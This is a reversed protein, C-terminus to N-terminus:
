ILMVCVVVRTIRYFTQFEKYRDDDYQPRPKRPSIIRESEFDYGGTLVENTVEDFEFDMTKMFEVTLDWACKQLCVGLLHFEGFPTALRLLMENQIKAKKDIVSNCILYIDGLTRRFHPNPEERRIECRFEADNHKATGILDSLHDRILEICVLRPTLFDIDYFDKNPYPYFPM